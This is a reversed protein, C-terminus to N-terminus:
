GRRDKVRAGDNCACDTLRIRAIRDHTQPFKEPRDNAGAAGKSTALSAHPATRRKGSLNRKSGLDAFDQRARM